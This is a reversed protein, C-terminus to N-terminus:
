IGTHDAINKKKAKEAKEAKKPLFKSKVIEFILGFTRNKRNKNKQLMKVVIYQDFSAGIDLSRLYSM